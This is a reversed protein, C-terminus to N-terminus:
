KPLSSIIRAIGPHQAAFKYRLLKLVTLFDDVEDQLSEPGEFIEGFEEKLNKLYNNLIEYDAKEKLYSVIKKFEGRDLWIGRCINCVDVKIRSDGYETEYLPLRCEPCFKSGRSIRFKEEDKWLDTDLWRLNKDKQDKAQDLEKEQFWLGLCRPCFDVEVGALLAKEMEVKCDPCVM